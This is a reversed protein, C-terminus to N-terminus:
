EIEYIVTRLAPLLRAVEDELLTLAEEADAFAEERGIEELRHAAEAAAAGGFVHASGKLTHAARRLEPGDAGAIHERIQQMLKPCEAFFMEALERLMAEDGGVNELASDWEFPVYTRSLEGDFGVPAPLGAEANPGGGEVAAYLEHPRVPKAVYGDMGAALFRDRDGKMAHATMAVIPIHGGTQAEALRIAATAELGDMEPMQVDMLVVDFPQAAVQEVAARGNSVVVVSHGREELLRVAVQQNIAGDEALLIRRATRGWSEVAVSEDGPAEGRRAEKSPVAAVAESIAELLDSQKVPKLLSHAIGLSRSWASYGARDASSLLLVPVQAFAANERIIAVTELGDMEPMMLDMLVLDFPSEASGASAQTAAELAAIAATGSEVLEIEMEWSKLIEELIRRNTAHDDVVLVKLGRLSVLDTRKTKPTGLGLRVTCYFTSGKGEESEVWIRGGMLEVLQQSIALGLGSGGFRRSTSEDVQSFSEFIQAQKEPAIGIGTDHVWLRLCVADPLAEEVAIGVEVEGEETFKVANGVLNIVVQRLRRPDGVLRDPVDAPIHCVLEINKSAAHMALTQVATGVEDRLDFEIEELALRGAEVKSFDLIDNLLSLLSEASQQVLTLYNRQQAELRTRGLLETMGIIGNMPTRIEHSMNALFASKAHNAAEAQDKADRLAEQSEELALLAEHESQATAATLRYQEQLQEESHRREADVRSLSAANWWILLAFALINLLTFLSFGFEYGYLSEVQIRVWDLLLPIVFAAPLLHRAVSGGETTSIITAVPERHPRACLLGFCLILFETATDPVVPVFGSVGYLLLVNHFYSSMSLLGIVTAAIVCIQSLYARGRVQVDMLVLALGILLFSFAANPSMRSVGLKFYFLYTDVGREWNYQYGILKLVAIVVVTAGLVVGVYRRWRSLPEAQLLLLSAGALIFQMAVLPHTAVWSIHMFSKLYEDDANWGWLVLVGALVTTFAALRALWGAWRLFRPDGGM